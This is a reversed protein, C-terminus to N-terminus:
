SASGDELNISGAVERYDMRELALVPSEGDGQNTRFIFQVSDSISTRSAEVGNCSDNVFQCRSPSRRQTSREPSQSSVRYRCRSVHKRLQRLIAMESMSKPFGEWFSPLQRQSWEARPSRSKPVTAPCHVNKRTTSETGKHPALTRGVATCDGWNGSCM